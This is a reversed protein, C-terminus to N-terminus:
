SYSVRLFFGIKEVPCRPPGQPPLLPAGDEGRRREPSVVREMAQDIGLARLQEPRAYQVFLGAIAAVEEVERLEQRSREREANRRLAEQEVAAAVEPEPSPARGNRLDELYRDDVLKQSKAILGAFQHKLLEVRDSRQAEQPPPPPPIAAKRKKPPPPAATTTTTSQHQFAPPAPVPPTSALFISFAAAAMETPPPFVPAATAATDQRHHSAPPAQLPPTPALFLPFARPPPPFSPTTDGAVALPTADDFDAHHPSPTFSPTSVAGTSGAPTAEDDDDDDDDFADEGAHDARRLQGRVDGIVSRLRPRKTPRPSPPSVAPADHLRAHRPQANNNDYRGRRRHRREMRTRRSRRRRAPTAM